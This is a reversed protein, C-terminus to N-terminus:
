AIVKKFEKHQKMKGFHKKLFVVFDLELTVIYCKIDRIHQDSNSLIEEAGPM